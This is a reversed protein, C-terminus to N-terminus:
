DIWQIPYFTDVDMGEGIAQGPKTWEILGINQNTNKDVKHFKSSRLVDITHKSSGLVLDMRQCGEVWDSPAITSEIGATIGCNFGGIAQFEGPITHMFFFDPKYTIQKTPLFYEELFKWEPNIDIFNTPTNGWACPLIKIDWEDKKLEILAKAINRGCAGYGSFTTVPSYLLCTLKNNM